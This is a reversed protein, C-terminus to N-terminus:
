SCLSLVRQDSSLFLEAITSMEHAACLQVGDRTVFRLLGVQTGVANALSVRLDCFRTAGSDHVRVSGLQGGDLGLCTLEVVSDAALSGCVQVIRLPPLGCAEAVTLESSESAQEEVAGDAFIGQIPGCHPQGNPLFLRSKGYRENINLFDFQTGVDCYKTNWPDDVRVTFDDCIERLHQLRNGDCVDKLVSSFPKKETDFELECDEHSYEATHTAGILRVGDFIIAGDNSVEYCLQWKERKLGFAWYLLVPKRHVVAFRQVAAPSTILQLGSAKQGGCEWACVDELFARGQATLGEDAAAHLGQAYVHFDFPSSPDTSMRLGLRGLASKVMLAHMAMAYPREHPDPVVPSLALLSGDWAASTFIGAAMDTMNLALHVLEHVIGCVLDSETLGAEIWLLGLHGTSSGVFRGMGSKWHDRTAARVDLSSELNSPHPSSRCVVIIGIVYAVLVDFVVHSLGQISALAGIIRRRELDRSPLAALEPDLVVMTASDRDVDLSALSTGQLADLAMAWRQKPSCGAAAADPPSPYVCSAREITDRCKSLLDPDFVPHMSM